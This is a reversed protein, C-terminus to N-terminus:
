SIDMSAAANIKQLLYFCWYCVNFVVFLSPFATRSYKDIKNVDRVMPMKERLERAKRRISLFLQRRRQFGASLRRGAQGGGAAGSSPPQLLNVIPFPIRAATGCGSGSGGGASAIPRQPGAPRPTSATAPRSANSTDTTENSAPPPCEFESLDRDNSTHHNTRNRLSGTRSAQRVDHLEILDNQVSVCRENVYSSTPRRVM